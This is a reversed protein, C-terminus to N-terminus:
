IPFLFLAMPSFLFIHTVSTQYHSMLRSTISEKSVQAMAVAPFMAEEAVQPRSLSCGPPPRQIGSSMQQKTQWGEMRGKRGTSATGERLSPDSQSLETTARGSAHM